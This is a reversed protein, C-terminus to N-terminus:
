ALCAATIQVLRHSAHREGGQPEGVGAGADGDGAVLLGVV